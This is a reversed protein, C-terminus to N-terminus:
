SQDSAQKPIGTLQFRFAIGALPNAPDFNDQIISRQLSQVTCGQLGLENSKAVLQQTYGSADGQEVDFFITKQKPEDKPEEVPKSELMEALPNKDGEFENPKTM